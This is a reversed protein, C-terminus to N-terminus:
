HDSLDSQYDIATQRENDIKGNQYKDQFGCQLNNSAM